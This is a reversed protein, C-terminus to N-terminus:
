LRNEIKEYVFRYIKDIAFLKLSYKPCCFLKFMINKTLYKEWNQTDHNKYFCNKYLFTFFIIKNNRKNKAFHHTVCINSM